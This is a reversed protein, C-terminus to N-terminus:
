IVFELLTHGPNPQEEQEQQKKKSGWRLAASLGKELTRVQHDVVPHSSIQKM